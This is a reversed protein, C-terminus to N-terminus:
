SMLRGLFDSIVISDLFPYRLYSMLIPTTLNKQCLIHVWVHLQLSIALLYQAM